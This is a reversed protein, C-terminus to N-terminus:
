VDIVRPIDARGGDLEDARAYVDATLDTLAGGLDRLSRAYRPEDHIEDLLAVVAAGMISNTRSIRALLERDRARVPGDGPLTRVARAPGHPGRLGPM